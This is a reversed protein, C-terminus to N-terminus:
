ALAPVHVFRTCLSRVGKTRKKRSLQQLVHPQDTLSGAKLAVKARPESGMLRSSATLSVHNLSRNPNTEAFLAIDFHAEDRHSVVVDTFRLEAIRSRTPLLSHQSSRVPHGIAGKSISAPSGRDRLTSRARDFCRRRSTRLSM